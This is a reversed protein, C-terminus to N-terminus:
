NAIHLHWDPLNHVNKCDIPLFCSVVLLLLNALKSFYLFQFGNKRVGNYTELKTGSFFLFYLFKVGSGLKATYEKNEVIYDLGIRSDM